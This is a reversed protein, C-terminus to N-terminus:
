AKWIQGLARRFNGGLILEVESESFGRRLLGAALEYARRGNQLGPLDYAARPRGTAPDALDLDCDSGLGVHEAGVLRAVHVFHDLLVDLTPRDGLFARVAAIGMVGGRAALARIEADAKNRPHPALARCNAHTVLVPRDSRAISDLTTRESCHSVDVAMGVRNMEAVVQRGFESLGQDHPDRCGSGLRCRDNYTLQSVRQGLAHFREVDEVTRFHESTQFGLLIGIRRDSRAPDLDAAGRVARLYASQGRLLQNWGEMWGLAAAHPDPSNPDVAPHFVDVGSAVLRRFDELGFTTPKRQWARLDASGRRSLVSGGMWVACGWLFRRRSWM